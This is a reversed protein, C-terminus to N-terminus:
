IHKLTLDLPKFNRTLESTSIYDVGTQAYAKLNGADIGGSAETPIQQNVLRVAEKLDPTSFNDLLIRTINPLKLIERIEEHNRAEVVIPIDQLEQAKLYDQVQRVAQDISGLYDIHNDKIMVMDDLGLRHNVGGGAQVAWKELLRLGPTTKRTDLLKTLLPAVLHTLQWTKTAIGSLHQTFNLILREGTLISQYPGEITLVQNGEGVLNGDKFHATVNVSTNLNQYIFPILGLGAVIGEEKAVLQAKGHQDANFIAQSTHDGAGLDEKVALDIFKQLYDKFHPQFDLLEM